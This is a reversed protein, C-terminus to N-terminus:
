RCQGGFVSDCTVPYENRVDYDFIKVVKISIIMQRKCCVIHLNINIIDELENM